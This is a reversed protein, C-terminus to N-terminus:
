DMGPLSDHKVIRVELDLNVGHCKQVKGRVLEILDTIDRARASGDNLMFNAHIESIRAGGIRAGKLGAQEILRGAFDGPPNKFMCGSCREGIPQQSRKTLAEDIRGQIAAKDDPALQLTAKLIIFDRLESRRYAYQFNGRRLTRRAGAADLVEVAEAMSCTDGKPTGANGALAGGLQGPVGAAWELGALGARKAFNMVASLPNAAGATVQHEGPGAELTRFGRGLTVIFGPYGSETFITNSGGGLVMWPADAARLTAVTATLADAGEAVLFWRAPGGVGMTTHRALSENERIELGPIAELRELLMQTM